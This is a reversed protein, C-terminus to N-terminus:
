AAVGTTLHEEHFEVLAAAMQGLQWGCCGCVRKQAKMLADGWSECTTCLAYSYMGGDWKGAVYTYTEGPRICERCEECTHAKRARRKSWRQFDDSAGSDLDYCTCM